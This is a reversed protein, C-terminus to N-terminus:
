KNIEFGVRIKANSNAIETKATKAFSKSSAEGDRAEFSVGPQVIVVM